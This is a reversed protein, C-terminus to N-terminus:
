LTNMRTTVTFLKLYLREREGGGTIETWVQVEESLYGLKVLTSEPCVTVAPDPLVAPM